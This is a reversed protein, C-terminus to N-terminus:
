AVDVELAQGDTSVRQYGGDDQAETRSDMRKVAVATAVIPPVMEARFAKIEALLEANDNSPNAPVYTPSTPTPIPAGRDAADIIADHVSMMTGNITTLMDLQQGGLALQQEAESAKGEAVKIADDVASAVFGVSHKYELASSANARAASLFKDGASGLAGLADADGGRAKANVAGFQAAAARYAEETTLAAAGALSTKYERLGDALGRYKSVTDSMSKNHDDIAAKADEAAYVQQQLSRLSPDLQNLEREREVAVADIEHGTARLLRIELDTRKDALAQAAAAAENQADALKKQADAADLASYVQQQLARLSPDLAALERERELAVAGLEDGQARLLQIQLDGQKDALAQAAQAAEAQADALKKQADAADEANYVSQLLARNAENTAALEQQRQLATAAATDGLATYLRIQLNTQEKTIAAAQDAAAQAAQTAATEADALKKQADAADLAIYVQQQLDRLSDPLAALQLAREAAVAEIEKGQARLLQIELDTRQKAIEAAVQAADEAAKAQDALSQALADAATKADEAKYIQELLAQNSEDTAAMELERQRALVGASDGLAQMLRIELDARSKAIEAATQHVQNLHDQADAADQADYVSQQLARLQPDLAALEDARRAALAGAADGQAEMLQIELDHRTKAIEAATMTTQNLADNAAALDEANYIAQLIARNSEDTAAIEDERKMALATSADGLATALREELSRREDAVKTAQAAAAAEADALAKQADAADTAAYIQEQLPRLSEDMAALEDERRAALAEASHGTLDLLQIEMTRRQKEIQALQEATKATSELTPNLKVLYDDVKAFAPAITLLKAYMEQGAETTLDLGLVTQKFQDKTTIGALGLDAMAKAVAAQVPAMQEAESLFSQAFQSTLETFNDLGGFLGILNERADVSAVGIAGFSKGISELAVDVVQYDRALRTLTEFLGEGVQQFQELGPVAANAMEDAAKSFQAELAKEIEDGTMGQLSLKGLSLQFADVIAAAGDVGIVKAADVVGDRLSAILLGIQNTFSSDLPTTETSYSTKTGTSIGFFKSKKTTQLANYIDGVVGSNVIDGVSQAVFEFGQDILTVTKKTGFLAKVVTDIVGGIIPINKGIEYIGLGIVGGLMGVGLLGQAGVSTKSGIGLGTTDFGGGPVNLQRAILASLSGISTQIARLSRAMDSSYELDKNTHQEVLDLSKALSDSKASSDGLVTGTGQSKQVDEATPISPGHGGGHLGKLGLAALVAVMAAVVPFGLPGLSAFIAAAGAAANATGKVGANVVTSATAVKDIVMAKIMNALQLASYVKELTAMAKYGTSGEKFFGKAASLANGWHQIENAAMTNRTRAEERLYDASGAGLEEKKKALAGELAMQKDAYDTFEVLLNAIAQGPKGFADALITGISQARQAFADLQDLQRDYLKMEDSKADNLETQLHVRKTEQDILTQLNADSIGTGAYRQRVALIALEREREENTKGVLELEKELRAIEDKGKQIDGLAQFNTKARASRNYQGELNALEAALKDYEEGTANAMAAEIQRAASHKKLFDASQAYAITGDRIAENLAEQADAEFRLDNAQRAADVAADAVAKRLQLNYFTLFDGKKRIAQEHAKEAATARMAAADGLDYAAALAWQAKIAAEMSDIERQLADSAKKIKEPDLYGKNLAADHVRAEANKRAQRAIADGAEGLYDRSMDKKFAAGFAKAAKDGAGAYQNAVKEIEGASLTPLKLGVKDLVTNAAGIFINIGDVSKKILSNIADISMNVASYFIDGMVAPFNKWLIKIADFTSVWGGIIANLVAKVAVWIGNMVTKVEDWAGKLPPGISGMIAQGTVQFVAKLTDMMTVHLETAKALGRMEKATLGLSEAYKKIPEGDNAEHTLAALAGAGAALAAAAVLGAAGLRGLSTVRTAAAATSAEAARGQAVALANEAVAAEAAAAAVAEHAAALRAQAAALANSGEATRVAALALELETDAAAINATARASAAAVAKAAGVAAAADAAATADQTVKIIGTMRALESVFGRVGLGAQQMIQGIQAGQQMLVTMPKQGSALGVVMDNLQFTLNQVHDAALQSAGGVAKIGTASSMAAAAGAQAERAMMAAAETATRVKAGAAASASGLGQVSAEAREGAGTLKDLGAAAPNVESADVKIALSALDTM